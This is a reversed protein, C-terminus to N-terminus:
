AAAPTYRRGGMTSAIIEFATQLNGGHLHANLEDANAEAADWTSFRTWGISVPHYGRENAVALGLAAIAGETGEPPCVVVFAVPGRDACADRFAEARAITLPHNTM